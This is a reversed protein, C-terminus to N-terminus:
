PFCELGSALERFPLLVLKGGGDEFLQGSILAPASGEALGLIGQGAECVLREALM